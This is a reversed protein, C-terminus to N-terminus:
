TDLLVVIKITVQGVFPNCYLQNLLVPWECMMKVIGLEWKRLGGGGIVSLGLWCRFIEDGPVVGNLYGALLHCSVVCDEWIALFSLGEGDGEFERLM